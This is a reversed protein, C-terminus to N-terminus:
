SAELENELLFALITNLPKIPLFIELARIPLWEDSLGNAVIQKFAYGYSMIM